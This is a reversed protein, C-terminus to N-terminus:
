GNANDTDNKVWVSILELLGRLGKKSDKVELIYINM